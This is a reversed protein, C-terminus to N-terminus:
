TRAYSAEGRLIEYVPSTNMLFTGMEKKAKENEYESVIQRYGYTYEWVDIEGTIQKALLPLLRQPGIYDGRYYELDLYDCMVDDNIFLPDDLYFGTSYGSANMDSSDCGETYRGTKLAREKKMWPNTNLLVFPEFNRGWNHSASKVIDGKKFPIPFDFWMGDFSLSLLDIEDDTMNSKEIGILEMKSNYEALLFENTDIYTKRIEVIKDYEPLESKVADICKSLSSFANEFCETWELDGDCKYQYSYISGKEKARFIEICNDEFRIIKGLMKHLSPWYKCNPREAVECDPMNEIIWEWDNHREAITFTRGMWVLWASQIPSFSYSETELYKRIDRSRIYKYFDM